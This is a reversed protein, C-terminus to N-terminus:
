RYDQCPDACCWINQLFVQYLDERFCSPHRFEFAFRDTRPLLEALGQLTGINFSVAPPLHFLIPGLQEGLRECRQWFLEWRSSFCRRGEAVWASSTNPPTRLRQGDQM